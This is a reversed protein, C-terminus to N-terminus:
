LFALQKIAPQGLTINRLLANAGKSLKREYAQLHGQYNIWGSDFERTNPNVRVMLFEKATTSIFERIQKYDRGGVKYKTLSDINRSRFWVPFCEGGRRALFRQGVINELGWGVQHFVASAEVPIILRNILRETLDKQLGDKLRVTLIGKRRIGTVEALRSEWSHEGVLVFDGVKCEM